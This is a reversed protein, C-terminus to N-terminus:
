RRVPKRPPRKTIARIYALNKHTIGTVDEVKPVACCRKFKRGSGCKCAENRGQAKPIPTPLTRLHTPSYTDSGPERPPPEGHCCPKLDTRARLLLGGMEVHPVEVHQKKRMQELEVKGPAYWELSPEPADAPRPGNPYFSSVMRGGCFARCAIMMATTGADVDVTTVVHGCGECRYYNELPKSM